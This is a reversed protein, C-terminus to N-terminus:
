YLGIYQAGEGIKIEHKQPHFGFIREYDELKAKYAKEAEPTLIAFTSGGFGQGVMRSAAVGPTEAARRVLWDIEPCSVEYLDRLSNQSHQFLKSVQTIDGAQMAAELSTLRIAEQAVHMCRRRMEETMKKENEILEVAEVDQFSIGSKRQALMELGSELQEIRMEIEPATEFGPVRSDYVITKYEAGFPTKINRACSLGEDMEYEDVITWTDQKASMMLYFDVIDYEREFYLRHSDALRLLLEDDSMDPEFLPRLALASALELASSSGFGKAKPITSTISFSLGGTQPIEDVTPDPTEVFISVAVKLYNAWRDERRPRLNVYSTRKREETDASFFRFMGDTRPSVAVALTKDISSSLLLRKGILGNEGLYHIRGPASAVSIKQNGQAFDYEKSHSNVLNLM